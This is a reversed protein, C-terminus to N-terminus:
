MIYLFRKTLLFLLIKPKKGAQKKTLLVFDLM